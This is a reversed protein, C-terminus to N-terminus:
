NSCGMTRALTSPMYACVYLRAMASASASPENLAGGRASSMSRTAIMVNNHVTGLGSGASAVVHLENGHSLTAAAREGCSMSVLMRAASCTALSLIALPEHTNSASAVAGLNRSVRTAPSASVTGKSASSPAATGADL